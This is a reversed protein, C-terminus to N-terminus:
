LDDPDGYVPQGEFLTVLVKTESIEASDIQFINRDTVILDAFKGPEISGTKKEQHNVFAANITFAAIAQELSVRQEPNLVETDHAEADVRTVATEIQPFPNATSVSWDSGFAVQGGSDIVSKIPYMWRATEESIFPLTLDVVYEDAYAWLPQFNAVVDLAAFRPIDEPDIIQLHAIHHRHGLDGNRRRAAEVADLAQRVAGDGIAHFHIQFGADDLLSVAEKLFEPDVMPIGRTEKEILYPELMVATYNEMVGDQMIKVATPRVNGRNFKDRLEVLYPIQEETEERQWWLGAVVRLNLDGAADLRAYAELDPEFVYADQISTIGYRHLMDRAYALAKLRDNLTSEPIHNTVLDMAGEQLSGIPEGTDPNRDIIGDPPDPTDRTIGAVRLAVSNAWASHGDQSSLFVPRDPVLEDLIERSPSAGPGFVAMSWGGGLIWPVDPNARAYESIRSRYLAVDNLGHLDCTLADMGGGIPHIHADQFAPMMLRGRLDRVVTEAGIYKRAGDDTGVFIIEGDRIAVAQAWPQEGNVTYIKGTHYVTDAFGSVRHEVAEVVPGDKRVFENSAPPM